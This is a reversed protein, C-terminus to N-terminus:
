KFIASFTDAVQKRITIEMDARMVAFAEAEIEIATMLAQDPQADKQKECFGMDLQKSAVDALHILKTMENAEDSMPVHHHGIVASLSSPLQWKAALGVGIHAHTLGLVDMEIDYMSNGAKMEDLVMQFMENFFHGLVQKGIDHVMGAMFPDEYGIDFKGKLEPRDNMQKSIVGVAISHQWFQQVDFAQAKGKFAGVVSLTRVFNIVTQLGLLNVADQVSTIQRSFSFASSNCHRLMQTTIGPDLEIVKAYEESTTDPNKSLKEIENYVTPMEPLGEIKELESLIHAKPHDEPLELASELESDAVSLQAIRDEGTPPGGDRLFIDAAAPSRSQDGARERIGSRGSALHRGEQAAAADAEHKQVAIMLSDLRGNAEALRTSLEKVVNAMITAKISHDDDMLQNIKDRTIVLGACDGIAVVTASRMHGSFVGMEGISVGPSLEILKQGAPSLVTLKGVILVLFDESADGATYIQTDTAYKQFRCIRILRESQELSLGELVPIKQLSAMLQHQQRAKKMSYPTNM